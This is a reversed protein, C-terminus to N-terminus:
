AKKSQSRSSARADSSKLVFTATHTDTLDVDNFTVTGGATINGAENVNSDEIVGGAATTHDAVITPKDNTGTITITFPVLSFDNNLAFNNDIRAM